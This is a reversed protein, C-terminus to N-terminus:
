TPQSGPIADYAQGTLQLDRRALALNYAPARNHEIAALFDVMMARYGALDILGPFFLRHRRGALVAFVGNTEFRLAGDTGFVRSMRMGNILGPLDWSYSLTAVAGEAYEITVVASREPPRPVQGARAPLAVGGPERAGSARSVGDASTPQAGAKHTAAPFSARIGLPTLGINALLSVWHIGGEFLAGGGALEPQDRWDSTKQRKLANLQILLVDGVDAELISRRLLQTLPKYFYNEAVLVQRGARGAMAAIEDFEVLTLFPPKEVIVHKGADLTRRAWEHHLSPPLAIIVTDIEPSALAAEYSGFHGAGGCRAAIAAARAQDRSAYWRPVQPAVARLTKSHIEAAFGSGLIAVRPRM